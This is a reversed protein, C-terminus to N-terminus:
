FFLGGLIIGSQVLCFLAVTAILFMFIMPIAVTVRQGSEGECVFLSTGDRALIKGSDDVKGISVHGQICFKEGKRKKHYLIISSDFPRKHYMDAINCKANICVTYGIGIGYGLIIITIALPFNYLVPLMLTIVACVAVDALGMLGLRYMVFMTGTIIGGMVIAILVSMDALSWEVLITYVFFCASICVSVALIDNMVTRERLDSWAMPALMIVTVAFSLYENMM